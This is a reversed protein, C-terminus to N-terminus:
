YEITFLVLSLNFLKTKMIKLNKPLEKPDAEIINNEIRNGYDDYLPHVVSKFGEKEEPPKEANVVFNM